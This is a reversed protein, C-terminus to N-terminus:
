DDWAFTIEEQGGLAKRLMEIVTPDAGEGELYALTMENIAYDQDDMGEEELHDVLFQLQEATINGIPACSVPIYLHKLDM